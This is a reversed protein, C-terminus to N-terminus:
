IASKKTNRYTQSMEFDINVKIAEKGRRDLTRYSNLMDLEDVSLQANIVDVRGLMYDTTVSYFDALLCLSELNMERKATEYLSYAQRTIKLYQALEEQGLGQKKRLEILKDSLM